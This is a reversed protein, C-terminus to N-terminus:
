VNFAQLCFTCGTHYPASILQPRCGVRQIKKGPTSRSYRLCPYHYLVEPSHMQCRQKRKGKVRCMLAACSRAMRSTCRHVFFRREGASMTNSMCAIVIANQRPCRDRSQPHLPIVKTLVNATLVERQQPEPGSPLNHLVAQRRSRHPKLLMIRTAAICVALYHFHACEQLAVFLCALWITTRM